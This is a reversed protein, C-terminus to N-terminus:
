GVYRFKVDAPRRAADMAVGRGPNAALHRLLVFVTEAEVGTAVGLAEAGLAEGPHARLHALLQRQAAIVVTAAKKGAEVGPQHYANTDILEAYLGVAREYLAILAGVTRATVEPVTITMVGRGQDALAQRTGRLFGLLYDGATVDPEVELPAGARERLVELFTTQVLDPLEQTPGVIRFMTHRVQSLHQRVVEGQAKRDGSQCRRVLDQDEGLERRLDADRDRQEM